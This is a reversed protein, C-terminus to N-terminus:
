RRDWVFADRFGLGRVAALGAALAARDGFPGAYILRLVGHRRPFDQRLAELGAGQLWRVTQDANATQRFAAVQIYYGPEPFQPSRVRSKRPVAPVVAAQPAPACVPAGEAGVLPAWLARGGLKVAVHACGAAD